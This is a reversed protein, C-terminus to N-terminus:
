GRRAAAAEDEAIEADVEDIMRDFLADIDEVVISKGRGFSEWGEQAAKRWLELTRARRQEEAKLLRLGTRVVDSANKFQGSAVLEDILREHADTLEIDRTTMLPPHPPPRLNALARGSGLDNKRSAASISPSAGRARPHRLHFLCPAGALDDRRQVGARDPKECLLILARDILAKYDRKARAGFMRGSTQLANRIDARARAAIRQARM